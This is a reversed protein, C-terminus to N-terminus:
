IHILSLARTPRSPRAADRTVTRLPPSCCRTARARASTGRGASRRASSGVPLRSTGVAARICPRSSSAARSAPAATTRTVWLGSRAARASLTSVRCPPRRQAASWIPVPAHAEADITVLALRHDVERLRFAALHPREVEAAPTRGLASNSGIGVDLLRREAREQRGHSAAAGHQRCCGGRVDVTRRAIRGEAIELCRTSQSAGGAPLGEIAGKWFQEAPHMPRGAMHALRGPLRRHAGAGQVRPLRPGRHYGQGGGRLAGGNQPPPPKGVLGVPLFALENAAEEITCGEVHPWPYWSQRLGTMHPQVQATEFRLYRASGLPKVIELLSAIAIDVRVVGNDYFNLISATPVDLGSRIGTRAYNTVPQYRLADPHRKGLPHASMLHFQMMVPTGDSAAFAALRDSVLQDDNMYYGQASSGDFYSDAKGYSEKLGYFNTHDGGLILHIRYGHQVLVQQLTFPRSSFQHVYKSSALSLLGCSSESCSAHAVGLNRM